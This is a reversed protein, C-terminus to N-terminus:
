SRARCRDGAEKEAVLVQEIGVVQRLCAAIRAIQDHELGPMQIDIVLEADDSGFGAAVVAHWRSPVLDRKAFQELVRPMLGPEPRGTVAFCAVPLAPRLLPLLPDRPEAAVPHSSM